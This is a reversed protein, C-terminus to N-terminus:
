AAMSATKGSTATCAQSIEELTVLKEFDVLLLSRDGVTQEGILAHAPIVSASQPPAKSVQYTQVITVGSIRGVVLGVRQRHIRAFVIAPQLNGQEAELGLKARLDILPVYAGSTYVAGVVFSPANGVPIVAQVDFRRTEDVTSYDIGYARGALTVSLFDQGLIEPDEDCRNDLHSM